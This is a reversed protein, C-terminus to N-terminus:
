SDPTPVPIPMRSTTSTQTKKKRGVGCEAISIKQFFAIEDRRKLLLNM